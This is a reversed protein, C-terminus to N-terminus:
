DNEILVQMTKGTIKYEGAFLTITSGDKLTVTADKEFIVTSNSEVMKTKIIDAGSTLEFELKLNDKQPGQNTNGIKAASPAGGNLCATVKVVGGVGECSIFFSVCTGSENWVPGDVKCAPRAAPNGNGPNGIMDPRIKTFNTQAITNLGLVIAIVTIIKKM